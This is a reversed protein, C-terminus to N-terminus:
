RQNKSIASYSYFNIIKTHKQSKGTLYPFYRNIIFIFPIVLILTLFINLLFLVNGNIQLNLLNFLVPLMYRLASIILYHLGLIILSNKGYFQLIKSSYTHKFIYIYALIGSFASVYFLLYNNYTLKYMDVRPNTFSSVIHILFLCFILIHSTRFFADDYKRRFFYGASYFVIGTFAIDIGWPTRLPIYISYLFGILSSIIILSLFKYTQKFHKRFIFFSLETILLCPLFWLPTNILYGSISCIVVYINFSLGKGFIEVNQVQPQYLFDMIVYFIYSIISFFLYATFLSSSRKILYAKELNVYKEFNILYGSIFFFLPMHFSYIYQNLESSLTNLHGVIVLIIAMGKLSDIWDQRM